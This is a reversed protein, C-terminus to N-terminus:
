LTNMAVLLAVASLDRYIQGKHALLSGLEIHTM